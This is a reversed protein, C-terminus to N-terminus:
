YSSVSRVVARHATYPWKKSPVYSKKVVLKDVCLQNLICGFLIAHINKSSNDLDFVHNEVKFGNRAIPQEVDFSLILHFDFRSCTRDSFKRTKRECNKTSSQAFNLFISLGM